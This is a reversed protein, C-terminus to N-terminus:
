GDLRRGAFCYRHSYREVQNYDGAVDRQRMPVKGRTTQYKDGFVRVSTQEWSVALRRGGM